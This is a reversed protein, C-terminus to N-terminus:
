RGSRLMYFLLETMSKKRPGQRCPQAVALEWQINEDIKTPNEFENTGKSMFPIAVMIGFYFSSEPAVKHLHRAFTGDQLDPLLAKYTEMTTVIYNKEGIFNLGNGSYLDEKCSKVEYCTFIGKEIGSVSCQNAPEFLLFDVRKTKGTEASHGYNITVESAWHKGMGSLKTHVLLDSLFKTTEKRNM